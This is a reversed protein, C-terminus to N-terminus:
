GDSSPRGSLAALLSAPSCLAAQVAGFKLVNGVGLPRWDGVVEGDVFTHNTSALDRLSPEGDLRLEAHQGSVSAHNLVIDNSPSRGISLIGLVSTSRNKLTLVYCSASLWEPPLPAAPPPAFRPLGPPLSRRPKSLQDMEKLQEASLSFALTRKQEKGAPASQQLGLALERSFDNLRVLLLYGGLERTLQEASRSTLKQVLAEPQWPPPNQQNM